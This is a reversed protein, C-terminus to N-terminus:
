LVIIKDCTYSVYGVDYERPGGLWPFFSLIKVIELEIEEDFPRHTYNRKTFLNIDLLFVVLAVPIYIILYNHM